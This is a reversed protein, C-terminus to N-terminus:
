KRLYKSGNLARFLDAVDGPGSTTSIDLPGEGVANGVRNVYDYLYEFFAQAEHKTHAGYEIYAMATEKDAHGIQRNRAVEVIGRYRMLGETALAIERTMLGETTLLENVHAVTLNDRQVGKVKTSAPDTLKCVQLIYNEILIRNLELFFQAASKRMLDHRADGSGFLERNTNFCTQIWVCHDRLRLFTAKLEASAM